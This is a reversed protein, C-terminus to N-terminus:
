EGKWRWTTATCLIIINLFAALIWIGWFIPFFNINTRFLVISLVIRLTTKWTVRCYISRWSRRTKNKLLMSILCNHKDVIAIGHMCPLEIKKPWRLYFIHSLFIIKCIFLLCYVIFLILGLFYNLDLCFYYNFLESSWIIIRVCFHNGSWM